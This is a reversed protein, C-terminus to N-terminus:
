EQTEHTQFHHATFRTKLKQRRACIGTRRIGFHRGHQNQKARSLLSLVIIPFTDSHAWSLCRFLRPEHVDLSVRPKQQAKTVSSLTPLQRFLRRHQLAGSPRPCFGIRLNHLTHPSSKTAKAFLLHHTTTTHRRRTHPTFIFRHSRGPSVQDGHIRITQCRRRPALYPENRRERNNPMTVGTKKKPSPPQMIIYAKRTAMSVGERWLWKKEPTGKKRTHGYFMKNAGAIKQVLFATEWRSSHCENIRAKKKTQKCRLTIQQM